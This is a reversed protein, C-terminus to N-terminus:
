VVITAAHTQRTGVLQLLFIPLEFEGPSVCHAKRYTWKGSGLNQEVLHYIERWTLFCFQPLPMIDIMRRNARDPMMIFAAINSGKQVLDFSVAPTSGEPLNVFRYLPRVNAGSWPSWGVKVENTTGDDGIIKIAVTSKLTAIFPQVKALQYLVQANSNRIEREFPPGGAIIPRPRDLSEITTSWCLDECHQVFDATILNNSGAMTTLRAASRVTFYGGSVKMVEHIAGVTFSTRTWKQVLNGASGLIFRREAHECQECGPQGRFVAKRDLYQYTVAIREDEHDAQLYVLTFGEGCREGLSTARLIFVHQCCHQSTVNRAHWGRLSSEEHKNIGEM